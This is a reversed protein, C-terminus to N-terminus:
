IKLIQFGINVLNLDTITLNEKVSSTISIGGSESISEVRSAINVENGYIDNDDLVIEGFNIGVRYWIKKEPIIIKEQDIIQYQIEQSFVLSNDCSEFIALFGDGTTKILKGNNAGLCPEIIDKIIGKQRKLTNLEDEEILRSFGVMDGVVISLKKKKM